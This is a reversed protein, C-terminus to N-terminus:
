NLMQSSRVPYFGTIKRMTMFDISGNLGLLVSFNNNGTASGGSNTSVSAVGAALKGVERLVPPVLPKQLTTDSAGVNLKVSKNASKFGSKTNM